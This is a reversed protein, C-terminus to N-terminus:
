SSRQNKGAATAAKGIVNLGYLTGIFFAVGEFSPLASTKVVLFSIWACAFILAFASGVRSFSPCGEDSFVRQWFEPWPIM